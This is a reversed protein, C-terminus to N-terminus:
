PARSPGRRAVSCSARSSRPRSRPATSEYWRVRARQSQEHIRTAIVEKGTGTEGLLLVTANTGAVMGIQDLVHRFVPERRHRRRRGPCRAWPRSHTTRTGTSDGIDAGM